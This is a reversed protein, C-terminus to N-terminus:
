SIRFDRRPLRIWWRLEEKSSRVRIVQPEEEAAAAVEGEEAVPAPPAEGDPPPQLPAEAPPLETTQAM